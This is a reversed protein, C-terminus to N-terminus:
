QLRYYFVTTNKMHRCKWIVFTWDTTKYLFSCQNGACVLGSKSSILLGSPDSLIPPNERHPHSLQGDFIQGHQRSTQGLWWDTTACWCFSCMCLRTSNRYNRSPAKFFNPAAVPCPSVSILRTTSETSRLPCAWVVNSPVDDKMDVRSHIWLKYLTIIMKSLQWDITEYIPM